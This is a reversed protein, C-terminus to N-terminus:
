HNTVLFITKKKKKKKKKKKQLPEKCIFFNSQLSICTCIALLSAIEIHGALENQWRIM